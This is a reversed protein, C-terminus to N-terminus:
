VVSKRDVARLSVAEELCAPSARITVLRVLERPSPSLISCAPQLTHDPSKAVLVEPTTRAPRISTYNAVVMLRIDQSAAKDLSQSFRLWLVFGRLYGPQSSCAGVLNVSRVCTPATFTGDSPYTCTTIFTTSDTSCVSDSASKLDCPKCTVSVPSSM